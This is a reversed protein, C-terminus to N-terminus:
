SLALASSFAFFKGFPLMRRKIFPELSHERRLLLIYMIFFFYMNYIIFYKVTKQNITSICKKLDIFNIVTYLM